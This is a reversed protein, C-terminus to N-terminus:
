RRLASRGDRARRVLPVVARRAAYRALGAPRRRYSWLRVHERRDTALRRKWPEEDGLLECAQLGQEFCHEIIELQLVGGAGLSAFAEDHGTKLLYLRGHRQLLLDVAAPRGDLYLWALRLEGRARHAHAVARYFAETEPASVIATGARGKWGAAEIAFARDLDADLDGLAGDFVFEAAHERRLKNRQTRRRSAHTRVYAARDGTTDVIPSVHVGEVVMPRRRRSSVAGVAGLLPDSAPVAHLALAAAGTVHAAEVVARLARADRAPARFQPSHYNTMSALLGGREHLALVAALEDARWAACIRLRSGAGFARWWCHFWAHTGFPSADGATLAEWGDHLAAFREGDTVWEITHSAAAPRAM